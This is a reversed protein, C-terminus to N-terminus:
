ACYKVRCCCLTYVIKFYGPRCIQMFVAKVQGHAQSLMIDGVTLCPEIFVLWEM